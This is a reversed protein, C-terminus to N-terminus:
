NLGSRSFWMRKLIIDRDVFHHKLAALVHIIILGILFYGAFEHISFFFNSVTENKPIFMPVQYLGFFNPPRGGAVSMLIGSLTMIILTFYLLFHVIKAAFIEWSRMTLLFIPRINVYRWILAFLVIMLILMGIPKHLGGILFGNLPSDESLFGSILILIFQTFVLLVITWHILKTILGYNTDTNKILM